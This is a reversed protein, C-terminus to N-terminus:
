SLKWNKGRCVSDASARQPRGCVLKKEVRYGTYACCEFTNETLSEPPGVQRGIFAWSQDGKPHVPQIEKCDLPSALTKELVM